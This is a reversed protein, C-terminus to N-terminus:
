LDIQTLIDWSKNIIDKATLVCKKGSKLLIVSKFRPDQTYGSLSSIVASRRVKAALDVTFTGAVSLGETIVSSIESAAAAKGFNSKIGQVLATAQSKDQRLLVVADGLTSIKRAIDLHPAEPVFGPEQLISGGSPNIASVTEYKQQLQKYVPLQRSYHEDSMIQRVTAFTKSKSIGNETFYPHAQNFVEGTKGVNNDFLEPIEISPTKKTPDENTPRARCRCGWDNPPYYRDWFPDNIPKIVGNLKEHEPRVQSDGATRYELNPFLDATEEFEKWRKAALGSNVANNYETYLWNKNYQEDIGLATSRYEEINKRFEAFGVVKGDADTLMKSLDSLEQYSKAGAFRYLNKNVETIFNFNPNDFNVKGIGFNNGFGKKLEGITLNMLDPDLNDPKIKGSQLNDLVRGIKSQWASLDNESPGDALFVDRRDGEFPSYLRNVKEVM